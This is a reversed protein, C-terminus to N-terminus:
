LRKGFDRLGKRLLDGLGKGLYDGLYDGLQNALDPDLYEEHKPKTATKAKPSVAMRKRPAKLVPEEDDSSLEGECDNKVNAKKKHEQMKAKVPADKKATSEHKKATTTANKATAKKATAKKAPTASKAAAKKAPTAAKKANEGPKSKEPDGNFDEFDIIGQNLCRRVKEQIMPELESYGVIADYDYAEPDGGCSKQLGAIQAKTVCGWHKWTWGNKSGFAVSTGFRLEDKPIKVKTKRCVTNQCIARGSRSKEITYQTM